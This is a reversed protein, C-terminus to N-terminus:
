DQEEAQKCTKSRYIDDTATAFTRGSRCRSLCCRLRWGAGTDDCDCPSGSRLDLCACKRQNHLLYQSLFTANLPCQSTALSPTSGGVGPKKLPM